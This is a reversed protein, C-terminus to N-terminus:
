RLSKPVTFRHLKLFLESRSTKLQQMSLDELRVELSGFLRAFTIQQDARM